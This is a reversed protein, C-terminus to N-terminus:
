HEKDADKKKDSKKGAPASQAPNAAAPAPNQKAAPASKQEQHKAPQQQQPKQQQQQPRQQQQQPKQQQQQQPKQQQQQPKQQQQQPKQQQQQPQQQPAPNNAKSESAHKKPSQSPLQPQSSQVQPKKQQHNNGAAPQAIQTQAPPNSPRDATNNKHGSSKGSPASSPQAQNAPQATQPQPASGAHQNRKGATPQQSAAPQTRGNQDVIPAQTTQPIRGPTSPNAGHQKKSPNTAPVSGIQGPAPNQPAQVTSPVPQGTNKGSQQGHKNVNQGTTPNDRNRLPKGQQGAVNPPTTPQIVPPNGAAPQVSTASPQQRANRKGNDRNGFDARSPKPVQRIHQGAINATTAAVGSAVQANGLNNPNGQFSQQQQNLQQRSRSSAQWPQATNQNLNVVNVRRGNNNGNGYSSYNWGPQWDGQYIQHRNWDFDYNLWSGVAFGIGFTVLPGYDQSYPQVYVIEPDYQPVYLYEPEAPVIRIFTKEKVVVQQPTDVLNGAAQAQARLQQIANMVDAPQVLFAQGLSTTWELNQDMWALVDPYSALSQVSNDWSQNPIQKPDGNGAVYRSALVVDSPVTSAPLILAILADPYLAIPALLQNLSDPSLILPAPLSENQQYIQVPAPPAEQSFLSSTLTALSVCAVGWKLCLPTLTRTTHSTNM